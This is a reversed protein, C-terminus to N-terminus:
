FPLDDASEATENTPWQKPAAGQPNQPAVRQTGYEPAANAPKHYRGTRLVADYRQSISRAMDDSASRLGRNAFSGPKNVFKVKESTQGNYESMETSIECELGAMTDPFNLDILTQGTFGLDRLTQVTKEAAKESLWLDAVFKKQVETDNDLDRTTMVMIRVSPTHKEKSEALSTSVITAAYNAM